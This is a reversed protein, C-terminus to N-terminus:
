PRQRVRREVKVLGEEVGVAIRGENVTYAPLKIWSRSGPRGIVEFTLVAVEGDAGLPLARFLALRGRGAELTNTTASFGASAAGSTAQVLRLVKPNYRVDLYFSVAQAVGTGTIPVRIIQGPSATLTPMSLSGGETAPVSAASQAGAALPQITGSAPSCVPPQWNGSVDGYLVGLFDQNEASEIIPSYQISGRVGSPPFPAIALANPEAQPTPVFVWDSGNQQAVAFQSILGVSFQAIRASDFSSLSGNGSVDAALRQNATLSILGVVHQANLSADFPDIAGGFDDTKFPTVLYSRVPVLGPFTYDGGCASPTAGIPPGIVTPDALTVNAGAVSKASPESGAVDDRYYSIRGSIEVPVAFAGDDLCVAPVGENLMGSVIDLPTGKGPSGLATFSIDALSGSGTLDSTCFVSIVARGPTTLNATTTCGPTLTGPAVGTAALVADNYEITLDASLVGRGTVDSLTVPIVVGSGANGLAVDPLGLAIPPTGGTALGTAQFIDQTVFTLDGTALDIAMVGEFLTAVYATSETENLILDRPEPLGGAIPTVVGTALDVASLEGTFEETVYAITGARNLAVGTPGDLGTARAIPPVAGTSLDVETLSGSLYEAVYARTGSADLAIGRPGQLGSAVTGIIFEGLDMFLGWVEGTVNDTVYARTEDSRVAIGWPNGLFALDTAAGTQLDVRQVSTGSVVYAQSGTTNVDVDRLPVGTFFPGVQTAVGTVVNVRSLRGFEETVYISDSRCGAPDCADGVGDTDSDTQSPNYAFPCNDIANCVGDGAVDDGTGCLGDAGFLGLNDDATDCLGDAARATESDGSAQHSCAGTGPDCQDITCPDGDSCNVPTGGICRFVNPDCIEVGDCAYGNDCDANTVCEEFTCFATCGDGSVTNGDDCEEGPEVVGNGCVPTTSCGSTDFTCTTGCALTGGLYGLTLCTNGGLDAGDCQETADIVGDGCAARALTTSGFAVLTALMLLRFVGAPRMACLRNLWPHNM